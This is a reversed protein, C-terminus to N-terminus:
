SLRYIMKAAPEWPDIEVCTKIGTSIVRVIVGVNSQGLGVKKDIQFDQTNFFM